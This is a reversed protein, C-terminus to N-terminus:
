SDRFGARAHSGDCFPKNASAGCRCLFCEDDRMVATDEVDILTALGRVIVPGNPVFSVNMASASEIDKFEGSGVQGDDKFACKAHAGDCLPKNQSRGCRCLAVRTSHELREGLELDIKGRLYLPGDKVVKITPESDPQEQAGADRRIYRLAGTPCREVVDAVTDPDANDPQIWPKQRPNFVKAAGRVCEAAHICRELSFEVDIKEGTYKRYAGAM